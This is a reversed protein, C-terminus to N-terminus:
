EMWGHKIGKAMAVAELLKKPSIKKLYEFHDKVSYVYENLYEQAYSIGRTEIQNVYSDVHEHDMDYNGYCDYPHSGFPAWVVADVLLFPIVVKDAEKRIAETDVIEEATLIVRNAAKAISPDASIGGDIIANGCKDARQVHLIAVHPFLAPVAILKQGSYPCEIIKARNQKPLDSGVMSFTPLFPVGMAASAFRLNMGLNSWEEFEVKGTEVNERMIKSVGWVVGISVWSSVIKKVLGAALLLEVDFSCLTKAVTLNRKGQRVIERVAAMAIRDYNASSLAVVEGDHVFRDIAENMPMLKERMSHDKQEANRRSEVLNMM